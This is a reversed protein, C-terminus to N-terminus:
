KTSQEFVKFSIFYLGQLCRWWSASTLVDSSLSDGKEGSLFLMHVASVQLCRRPFDQMTVGQGAVVELVQSDM